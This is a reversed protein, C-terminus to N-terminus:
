QALYEAALDQSRRRAFAFDNTDFDRLVRDRNRAGDGSGREAALLFYALGELRNEDVGIGYLYMYGISSFADADGNRAARRYLDLAMARDRAVGKGEFYLLGLNYQATAHGQDSAMLYWRVAEPYSQPVGQGTDHLIGLNFQAEADGNEALPTLAAVLRVADGAEYASQVEDWDASGAVPVFTLGITLLIGLAWAYSM